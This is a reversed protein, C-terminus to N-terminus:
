TREERGIGRILVDIAAEAMRDFYEDSESAHLVNSALLTGAMVGAAMTFVMERDLDPRVRGQEALRDYFSAFMRAAPRFLNDVAAERIDAHQMAETIMIRAMPLIAKVMDRRDRAIDLMVDKLPRNVGERLIRDIGAIIVKEGLMSLMRIIMGHLLDKKTRYYRFLTGEAVGALKAIDSTTASSYGKEAIVSVAADLIAGEKAAATEPDLPKRGM